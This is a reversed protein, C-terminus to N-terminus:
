NKLIHAKAQIFDTISIKSDSNMDGALAYVGELTNKKLIHAKLAIMDTITIKGDGNTDGSIVIEKSDVVVGNVIMNIKAGTGVKSVEIHEKNILNNKLTTINTGLPIYIYQDDTKYVSSTITIQKLQTGEDVVTDTSDCNDCKATKTGDAEYTANNDSVYNTYTHELMDVYSDNFEQLCMDCTHHTYGYSTCTPEVVESTYSHELQELTEQKVLVENCRGCYSGESLGSSSCTPEVVNQTIVYHGLAPVTNQKVLVENCRDCHSGASLGTLTCTSKVAQDIVENHGLKDIVQENNTKCVSCTQRKLGDSTCTPETIIKWESYSHELKNTIDSKYSYGCMDCTYLTYGNTTCTPKMTITNFHSENGENVKLSFGDNYFIYSTNGLLRIRFDQGNLSNDEESVLTLSSGKYCNDMRQSEVVQIHDTQDYMSVYIMNDTGEIRNELRVLYTHSANPVFYDRHRIGYYLTEGNKELAFLTEVRNQTYYPYYSVLRDTEHFTVRRNQTTTYEIVWPQNHMLMVPRALEYYRADFYVELTAINNIQGDRNSYYTDCSPDYIFDYQNGQHLCNNSITIDLEINIIWDFERFLISGLMSAVDKSISGNDAGTFDFSDYIDFKINYVVEDDSVSKKTFYIHNMLFGCIWELSEDYSNKESIYTNENYVKDSNEIRMDDTYACVGYYNDQGKSNWSVGNEMFLTHLDLGNMISIGVEISEHMFESFLKSNLVLAAISSNKDLTLKKGGGTIGHTALQLAAADDADSQYTSKIFTDVQESISQIDQQNIAQIPTIQTFLLCLILIIKKFM